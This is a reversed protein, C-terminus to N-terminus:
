FGTDANSLNKLKGSNYFTARTKDARPTGDKKLLYGQYVEYPEGGDFYRQITIKDVIIVRDDSGVKDGIKAVSNVSAYRKAIELCRKNHEAESEKILNKYEERTM